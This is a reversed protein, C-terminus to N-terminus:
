NAGGSRTELAKRIACEPDHCWQAHDRMFQDALEAAKGEIIGKVTEAYTKEAEKLRDSASDLQAVEDPCKVLAVERLSDRARDRRERAEEVALGALFFTKMGTM